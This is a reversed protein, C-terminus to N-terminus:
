SLSERLIPPRYHSYGEPPRRERPLDGANTVAYGSSDGASEVDIVVGFANGVTATSSGMFRCMRALILYARGANAGSAPDAVAHM